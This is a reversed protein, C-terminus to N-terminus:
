KSLNWMWHQRYVIISKHLIIFSIIHLVKDTSLISM